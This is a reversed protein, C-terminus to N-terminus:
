REQASWTRFFYGIVSALEGGKFAGFIALETYPRPVTALIQPTLRHGFIQTFNSFWEELGITM